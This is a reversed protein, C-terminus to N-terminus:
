SNRRGNRELWPEVDAELHEQCHEILTGEALVTGLSQGELRPFLDPDNLQSEDLGGIIDRLAQWQQLSTAVVQDPSRPAADDHIWQNVAEFDGDDEWSDPDNFEAPWPTPPFAGGALATRFSNLTKWQWGSIHAVLQKPSWEGMMGPTEMRDIGIADLAARWRDFEADFRSLATERSVQETSM